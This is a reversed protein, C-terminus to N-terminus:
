HEMEEELGGAEEAEQASKEPDYEPKFFDLLNLKGAKESNTAIVIYKEEDGFNPNHIYGCRNAM